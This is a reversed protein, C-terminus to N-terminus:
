KKRNQDDEPPFLPDTSGFMCIKPIEQKRLLKFFEEFFRQTENIVVETSINLLIQCYKPSNAGFGGGGFFFFLFPWKMSAANGRFYQFISLKDICISCQHFKDRNHVKM